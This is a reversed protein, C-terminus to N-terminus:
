INSMCDFIILFSKQKEGHSLLLIQIQRGRYVVLFNFLISSVVTNMNQVTPLVASIRSSPFCFLHVRHNSQSEALLCNGSPTVLLPFGFLVRHYQQITDSVSWLKPYGHHSSNVPCHVLFSPIIYLFIELLRYLLEKSDHLHTHHFEMLSCLVLFFTISTFLEWLEYLLLIM